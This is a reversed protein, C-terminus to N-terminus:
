RSRGRPGRRSGIGHRELERRVEALGEELWRRAVDMASTESGPSSPPILLPPAAGPRTPPLARTRGATTRPGASRPLSLSSAHARRANRREARRENVVATVGPPVVLSARPSLGARRMLAKWEPGHPRVPATHLRRIAAHAAEHGLVTLFLDRGGSDLLHAAIRIEDRVPHYNGLTRYMRRSPRIRVEQALGPTGWLEAWGEMYREIEERTM